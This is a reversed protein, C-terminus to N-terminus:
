TQNFISIVDPSKQVRSISCHRCVNTRYILSNKLRRGLAPHCLLPMSDPQLLTAVDVSVAKNFATEGSILFLHGSLKWSSNWIGEKETLMSFFQHSQLVTVEKLSRGYRRQHFLWYPRPDIFCHFHKSAYIHIYTIRTILFFMRSFMSLVTVQTIKGPCLSGLERSFRPM